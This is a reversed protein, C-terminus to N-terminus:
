RLCGVREQPTIGLRELMRPDIETEVAPPVYLTSIPSVESLHLRCLEVEVISPGFGPLTSAEYLFGVHKRPYTKLLEDTLVKLKKRNIPGQPHDFRGVVGVQWLVLGVGADAHRHRVLFDTAEYSQWGEGPDVGLDAILCADASVAPLMTARYGEDRAIRVVAHAPM